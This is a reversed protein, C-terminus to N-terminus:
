YNMMNSVEMCQWRYTRIAALIKPSLELCEMHGYRKCKTCFVFYGSKEDKACISCVMLTVSSTTSRADDSEEGSLRSDNFHFNEKSFCGGPLLDAEDIKIVIEDNDSGGELQSNEDEPESDSLEIGLKELDGIDAPAIKNEIRYNPNTVLARLKHEKRLGPRVVQQLPLYKLEEPTYKVHYASYQGPMVQCPYKPHPRTLEPDLKKYKKDKPYQVTNTCEDYYSTFIYKRRRNLNHSFQRAELLVQNDVKAPNYILKDETKMILEVKNHKGEENRQRLLNAYRRHEAAFEKKERQSLEDLFEDYKEPYDKQMLVHVDAAKIRYLGLSIQGDTVLGQERLYEAENADIRHREIEPYKRKFSVMNLFNGVQEQVMWM